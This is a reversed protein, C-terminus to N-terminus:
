PGHPRGVTPVQTEVQGTRLNRRIWGGPVKVYEYEDEKKVPAPRIPAGLPFRPDRENM